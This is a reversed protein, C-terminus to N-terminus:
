RRRGSVTVLGGPIMWRPAPRPSSPSSPTPASRPSSPSSPTPATWCPLPHQARALQRDRHPFSGPAAQDSDGAALRARALDREARLMPAIQGPQYSDLLSLLERAAAADRLEHVARAALPWAWRQDEASIGLVGVQALTGRAYRLADEHQRRAAATFAEVLGIFGKMGPDESARLDGLGALMADAIAVDGRLAALLGRYCSLLPYDPVGDPDATQTLEREAADWDGLMVLAQVLNGTAFALHDRQGTRRLHGAAAQASEAAAAPDTVALADSLNILARGLLPDDGALTALRASERFYAAAQSSSKRV